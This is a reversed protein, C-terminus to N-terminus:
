AGTLRQAKLARTKEWRDKITRTIINSPILQSIRRLFRNMVGPIVIAKNKLAASVTLFAVDGVNKTTLRGMLGQSDISNIVDAHTPMGAPCLATVKAGTSSIEERLALTFDMLFRKSAAYIAKLPMPYFGALSCVNIQIYEGNRDRCGLVTHTLEVVSIINVSMIEKIENISRSEFNGEHDLGAINILGSFVLKSTKIFECMLIRETDISLDCAYYLVDTGYVSQVTAAIDSLVEEKRDTLFLNWGRSACEMVFSKGLGGCAGTIMVYKINM